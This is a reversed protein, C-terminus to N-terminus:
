DYRLYVIIKALLSQIHASTDLRYRIDNANSRKSGCHRIRLVRCPQPFPDHLCRKRPYAINPHGKSNTDCKFMVFQRLTLKVVAVVKAWVVFAILTLHTLLSAGRLYNGVM